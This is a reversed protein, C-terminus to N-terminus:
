SNLYCAVLLWFAAGGFYFIGIGTVYDPSEKDKHPNIRESVDIALFVALLWFMLPM